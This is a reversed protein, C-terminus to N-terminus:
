MVRLRLQFVFLEPEVMVVRLLVEREFFGEDPHAVKLVLSDDGLMRGADSLAERAGLGRNLYAAPTVTCSRQM